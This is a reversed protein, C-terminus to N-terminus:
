KATGKTTKRGKLSQISVVKEPQATMCFNAWDEMMQRRKELMDGRRYAAEVDSPIAHALAMESMTNPYDTEESAWDKFTSRFGHPVAGVEMDRMIANLSMDSLQKGSPAPFLYDSGVTKPIRSLLKLAETSLPVRHEKGAKMREPPITWM